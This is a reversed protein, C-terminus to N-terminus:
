RSGKSNNLINDNKFTGLKEGETWEKKKKASSSEGQALMQQWDEEKEQKLFILMSSVDM